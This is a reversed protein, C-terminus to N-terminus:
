VLPFLRKMRIFFPFSGLPGKSLDRRFNLLVELAFNLVLLHSEIRHQLAEPVFFFQRLGDLVLFDTADLVM